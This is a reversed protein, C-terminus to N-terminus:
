PRGAKSTRQRRLGLGLFLLPLAFCHLIGFGESIGLFYDLCEQFHCTSTLLNEQLLKDLLLAIAYPSWFIYLLWTLDMQLCKNKGHWTLAVKALLMVLPLIAFIALFVLTHALSWPHLEPKLSPACVDGPTSIMAAPTACLFGVIWLMALLLSRLHDWSIPCASGAVVLGQAFLCGHKLGRTVQCFHYGFVWGQKVEVAFFALTTAFITTAASMLFLKHKGPHRRDWLHPCKALTVGLAVSCLFGLITALVLLALISRIFSVCFTFQCPQPLLDDVYPYEEYTYNETFNSM